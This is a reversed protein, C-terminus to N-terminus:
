KGKKHQRVKELYNIEQRFNLIKQEGGGSFLVVRRAICSILKFVDFFV